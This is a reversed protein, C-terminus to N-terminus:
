HLSDPAILSVNGAGMLEATIADTMEKAPVSYTFRYVTDGAGANGTWNGLLDQTYQDGGSGLM